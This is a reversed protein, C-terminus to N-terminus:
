EGGREIIDCNSLEEIVKFLRDASDTGMIRNRAGAAGPFGRLYRAEQRRMERLAGDEGRYSISLKLHRRYVALREQLSPPPEPKKGELQSRIQRFIWPNGLAARGIMVGDCGCRELMAAADGASAIDGNGFVPIRVAKSVRGIAEWDAKGSFGQAVTRGHVTVAGIGADEARRAIEGANVQKEDWGLRLKITVPCAVAQVVAEFIKSCHGPKRLLAGGEGSHVIRPAPCGLNLDILDVGLGEAKQAAAALLDPESGFLQLGIPREAESFHTM